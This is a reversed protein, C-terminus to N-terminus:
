PYAPGTFNNLMALDREIYKCDLGESLRKIPLAGLFAGIPM